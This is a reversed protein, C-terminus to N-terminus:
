AEEPGMYAFTCADLLLSTLRWYGTMRGGVADPDHASDDLASDDLFAGLRGGRM